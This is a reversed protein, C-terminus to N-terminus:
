GTWHAVTVRREHETLHDDGAEGPQPAPRALAWEVAAGLHAACAQRFDVVTTGGGATGADEELAVSYAAPRACAAEDAHAECGYPWPLPSEPTATTTTSRPM